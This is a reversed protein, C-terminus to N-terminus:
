VQAWANHHAMGPQLYTNIVVPSAPYNSSGPFASPGATPPNYYNGANPGHATDNLPPGRTQQENTRSHGGPVTAKAPKRAPKEPSNGFDEESSSEPSDYFKQRGPM